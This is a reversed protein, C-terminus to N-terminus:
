QESRAALGAVDPTKDAADYIRVFRRADDSDVSRLPAVWAPPIPQYRLWAVVMVKPTGKTLPVQFHVTDGGPGFDADHEVGVPATEAAHPGDKRWGRPLLRTDKAMGSMATLMRTPAGTTDSPVCEYVVVHDPRTVVDRHQLVDEDPVGSLRGEKDFAGTQFVVDRGARVEVQLWARRAPYGTPFKHGTLNEIKVDFSLMEDGRQPASITLRASQDALQRRTIAAARELAQPAASVELEKANTRLLDLMFANGGALVHAAYGPRPEINFDRGAPNRAIRTEGQRAMHCDQCTRTGDKAGDENSFASNRWELYPTQEAFPKGAHHTILTHCAGCLASSTVQPGHVATYGSHMQMPMAAPREYPGFITRETGIALNGSFSAATGLGEAKAQHCVTCSVGDRALPDSAAAALTPSPVGGLRASHSAMPAHCRMCLAQVEAEHGPNAACEKAVQARWYPDRFANAMLTAQWLGHPSVDDGTPSRMAIARPSASHCMACGDATAFAANAGSPTVPGRWAPGPGLTSKRTSPEQPRSAPDQLGAVLTAILPLCLLLRRFPM